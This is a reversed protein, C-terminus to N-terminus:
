KAFLDNLIEDKQPFIIKHIYGDKATDDLFLENSILNNEYLSHKKPLRSRM